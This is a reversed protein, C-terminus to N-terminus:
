RGPGPTPRAPFEGHRAGWLGVFGLPLLPVLVGFPDAAATAVTVVLCVGLAGYLSWRVRAAVRGEVLFLTAVVIHDGRASRVFAAGLAWCWVVMGILFLVLATGAAVGEWGDAGLAFPVATVAFVVNAAWAAVEIGRGRVDRQAEV